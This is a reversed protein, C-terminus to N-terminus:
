EPPFPAKPAANRRREAERHLRAARRHRSELRYVKELALTMELTRADDRALRAHTLQNRLKAAKDHERPNWKEFVMARMSSPPVPWLWQTGVFAVALAPALLWQWPRCGRLMFLPVGLLVAWLPLMSVSGWLGLRNLANTPAYDHAIFVSMLDRTPLAVQPPVHPFYASLAGTTVTAYLTSAIILVTGLRGFRLHLASAGEAAFWAVFPVALALYRPGLTWGGHWNNMFCIAVFTTLFVWLATKAARVDLEGRLKRVAGWVALAFIPTGPILGVSMDFLLSFFARWHFDTAGFFGQEHAARFADTEVHLHGPTLPSGFAKWQFHMVLLTPILGGAVYGATRKMANPRNWVQLLFYFTLVVSAPLGPYEFFTVGAALLGTWFAAWPQHHADNRIRWFAGFACIASSSHSVFLISYAFFMSGLAFSFFVSDVVLPDDFESRLWHLFFWLFVLSPVTAASLRCLWLAMPLSFEAEQATSVERYLWYAPVGLLSTGPAKVSYYRGEIKAQDNTWGWRTRLASIEYTGYEALAATMYFRVNENPNNLRPFYPFAYLYAFAIIAIRLWVGARTRVDFATLGALRM